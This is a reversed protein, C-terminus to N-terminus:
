IPRIVSSLTMRAKTDLGPMKTRQHSMITRLTRSCRGKLMNLRERIKPIEALKPNSGVLGILERTYDFEHELEGDTNKLPLKDKISGDTEYLTKCLQKSRLRLTELPSRPNSRSGTHTADVIITRSKIIGKEIAIEVTKGILLDLM